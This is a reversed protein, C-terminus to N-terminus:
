SAQIPITLHILTGHRPSGRIRFVGGLAAARERMGLLGLAEPAAIQRAEIGRGNDRVRLELHDPSVRFQIDVRSARAHRAVNHLLEQVVRFVATIREAVMLPFTPPLKLHCAIGTRRQFERAQWEIAAALGLADLIPPRLSTAIRRVTRADRVARRSMARLRARLPSRSEMGAEALRRNLWALDLRLDTMAYGLEDHVERAIRSREEERVRESRAHMARLAQEVQVRRIILGLASAVNELALRTHATIRERHRSGATLCGVLRGEHRIPLWVTSWLGERIEARTLRRRGGRERIVSRSARLARVTIADLALSGAAKVFARSWGESHVLRFDGASNSLYLGGSDMGSVRVVTELCHRLTTPLDAANGTALFLDRQAQLLDQAQRRETIDRHTLVLWKRDGEVARTAQLEFWRRTVPSHCPYDTAFEQVRGSLVARLGRYVAHALRGDPGSAQRCIAFYNVGVGVRSAPLRNATAFERWARNVAVITGREDLVCLHATLANM